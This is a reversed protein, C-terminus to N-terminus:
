KTHLGQIAVLIEEVDDEFEIQKDRIAKIEHTNTHVAEDLRHETNRNVQEIMEYMQEISKFSRDEMMQMWAGGQWFIVFVSLTMFSKYLRNSITYFTEKNKDSMFQKRSM